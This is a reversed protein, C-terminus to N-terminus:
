DVGPVYRTIDTLNQFSNDSIFERTVVSLSQPINVLPTNIKTAVPTSNAYIGVTGTRADQTQSAPWAAQIAATSDPVSPPPAVPTPAVRPRKSLQSTQVTPTPRPKSRPAEVTVQPLVATDPQAPKDAPSSSTNSQASPPEQAPADPLSPPENVPAVPSSSSENAPATQETPSAQANVENASAAAFALYSLLLPTIKAAARIRHSCRSKKDM